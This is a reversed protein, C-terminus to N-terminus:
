QSHVIGNRLLESTESSEQFGFVNRDVRGQYSHGAVAFAFAKATKESVVAQCATLNLPFENHNQFVPSSLSLRENKDICRQNTM